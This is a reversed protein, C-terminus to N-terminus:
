WAFATTARLASARPESSHNTHSGSALDTRKAVLPRLTAARGQNSVAPTNMKHVSSRRVAQVTQVSHLDCYLMQVPLTSGGHYTGEEGIPTKGSLDRSASSWCGRSKEINQLGHLGTHGTQQVGAHHLRPLQHLRCPHELQQVGWISSWKQLIEAPQLRLQPQPTSPVVETCSRAGPSSTAM